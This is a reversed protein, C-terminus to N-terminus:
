RTPRTMALGNALFQSLILAISYPWILEPLITQIARGVDNRLVFVALALIPVFGIAFCALVVTYLTMVVRPWGGPCGFIGSIPLILPSCLLAALGFANDDTVIWLAFLILTILLTGGIWNSAIVQDRSLAMRGFRNLRLALNSLPVGVWTMIVFAVYAYLIPWIWPALAPHNDALERLARYGIYGGIIIAWSAKGSLKAMWLFYALLLRYVLYRAKLAEVMGARAWDLNPNLRLAERFHELAKDPKRQELYTWGQNAHSIENEPDRSLVGDLTRAAEQKRGLKVLAMSKLNACGVDEPDLELGEEAVALAASWDGKDFCIGALLSRHASADPDLRIAERAAKEAENLLHRDHLIHGLVYHAFPYDPALHVAERAERTAEAFQERHALCLGLLAHAHPQDPDTTLEQRLENEALDFRSQQFLLEARALHASM